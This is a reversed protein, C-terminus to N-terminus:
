NLVGKPDVIRLEHVKVDGGIAWIRVGAFTFEADRFPAFTLRGDSHYEGISNALAQALTARGQHRGARLDGADSLMMPNDAALMYNLRLPRGGYERRLAFDYFVISTANMVEIDYFVYIDHWFEHPIIAHVEHPLDLSANPWGGGENTFTYLQAYNTISGIRGGGTNYEMGIELPYDTNWVRPDIDFIDFIVGDTFTPNVLESPATQLREPTPPATVESSPMNPETVDEASLREAMIENLRARLDHMPEIHSLEFGLLRELRGQQSLNLDWAEDNTFYEGTLHNFTGWSSPDDPPTSLVPEITIEGNFHILRLDIIAAYTPFHELFVRGDDARYFLHPLYFSYGAWVSVPLETAFEYVGNRYLYMNAFSDVDSNPERWHIILTPVGNDELDFLEFNVAMENNGVAFEQWDSKWGSGWEDEAFRANHFFQPYQALHEVLAYEWSETQAPPMVGPTGPLMDDQWPGLLMALLGVAVLVLTAATGLAIRKWQPMTNQSTQNILIIPADAGVINQQIKDKDIFMYEKKM